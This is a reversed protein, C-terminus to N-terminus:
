TVTARHLALLREGDVLLQGEATTGRVMDPRLGELPRARSEASDAALPRMGHVEDVTIAAVAATRGLVLLHRHAGSSAPLALLFALDVVPLMRGRWPALGLLHSAGLPLPVLGRLRQVERVWALDLLCQQDALSFHLAQRPGSAEEPLLDPRALKEARQRLVEGPAADPLLHTPDNM